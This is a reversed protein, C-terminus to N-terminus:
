IIDRDRLEKYLNEKAGQFSYKEQAIRFGKDSMEKWFSKDEILRTCLKAQGNVDKYGRILDPFCEIIYDATDSGVFPTKLVAGVGAMSALGGGFANFVGLYSKSIWEVYDWWDLVGMKYFPLPDPRQRTHTLGAKWGDPLCKKLVNASHKSTSWYNVPSSSIIHKEREGYSKHFKSLYEIDFPALLCAFKNTNFINNWMMKKGSGRSESANSTTFIFDCKSVAYDAWEFGRYSRYQRVVASPNSCWSDWSGVIVINPNHKRVLKTRMRPLPNGKSDGFNIFELLVGDYEEIHEEIDKWGSTVDAELAFSWTSAQPNLHSEPNRFRALQEENTRILNTAWPSTKHWYLWKM